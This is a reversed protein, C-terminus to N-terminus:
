LHVPPTAASLYEASLEFYDKLRIDNLMLALPPVEEQKQLWSVLKEVQKKDNSNLTKRHSQYKQIPAREIEYEIVKLLPTTQNKKIIMGEELRWAFRNMKRALEHLITLLYNIFTKRAEPFMSMLAFALKHQNPIGTVSLKVRHALKEGFVFDDLRLGSIQNYLLLHNKLERYLPQYGAFLDKPLPLRLRSCYWAQQNKIKLVIERINALREYQRIERFFVQNLISQYYKNIKQFDKEALKGRDAIELIMKKSISYRVSLESMAEFQVMREFSLHSFRNTYSNLSELIKEAKERDIVSEKVFQAWFQKVTQRHGNQRLVLEVLVEQVPQYNEGNDSRFTHKIILLLNELLISFHTLLEGTKESALAARLKLEDIKHILFEEWQPSLHDFFATFFSDSRDLIFTRFEEPSISEPSSFYRLGLRIFEEVMQNYGQGLYVHEQLYQELSELSPFSPPRMQWRKLSWGWESDTIEPQEGSFFCDYFSRILWEAVKKRRAPDDNSVVAGSATCFLGKCSLGAQNEVWDAIGTVTLSYNLDHFPNPIFYQPALLFLTINKQGESVWYEFQKLLLYRVVEIRKAPVARDPLDDRYYLWLHLSRETDWKRESIWAWLALLSEVDNTNALVVLRSNQHWLAKLDNACRPEFEVVETSPRWPIHPFLWKQQWKEDIRFSLPLTDMERNSITSKGSQASRDCWVLRSKQLLSSDKAIPLDDLFRDFRFRNFGWILLTSNENAHNM